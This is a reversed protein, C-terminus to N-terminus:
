LEKRSRLATLKVWWDSNAAKIKKEAEKAAELDNFLGYCTAGSGSMRGLLIKDQQKLEGLITSIEPMLAIAPAELDNRTANLYAIFEATNQWNLPPITNPSTFKEIGRVFVQQTSLPKCPNILVAWVANIEPVSTIKEGIGEILAAQNHYCFPVDAGLSLAIEYWKSEPIDPKWYTKLLRLMAGADASGGGLGAGVPINKELNIAIDPSVGAAEAVMRTTKLVINDNEEHALAASTQGAMHFKLVPSPQIEIVDEIDTLVMLSNLLHYGDERRGTVHLTLNLKARAKIRM